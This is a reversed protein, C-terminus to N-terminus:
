LSQLLYNNGVRWARFILPMQSKPKGIEAEAVSDIQGSIVTLPM